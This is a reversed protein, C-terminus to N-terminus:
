TPEVVFCVETLQLELLVRPALAETSDSEINECRDTASGQAMETGSDTNVRWSDATDETSAKESSGPETQSEM